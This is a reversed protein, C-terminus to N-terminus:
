SCIWEHLPQKSCELSIGFVSFTCVSDLMTTVFGGQIIDGSHCFHLPVEFDMECIGKETDINTIVCNFDNLFKPKRTNLLEIINKTM